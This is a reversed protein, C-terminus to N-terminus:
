RRAGKGKIKDRFLRRESDTMERATVLWLERSRRRGIVVLLYRGSLTRGYVLRKDGQWEQTSGTSVNTVLLSGGCSGAGRRNRCQAKHQAQRFMPSTNLANMM